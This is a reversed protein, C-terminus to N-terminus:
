GPRLSRYRRHQGHSQYTREAFLPEAYDIANFPKGTAEVGVHAKVFDIGNDIATLMLFIPKVISQITFPKDWDGAYYDGEATAVFIGIEERNAKALEPIYDAM